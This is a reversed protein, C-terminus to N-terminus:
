KQEEEIRVFKVINGDLRARVVDGPTEETHRFRGRGSTWRRWIKYEGPLGSITHISTYRCWILATRMYTATPLQEPERPQPPPPPCNM